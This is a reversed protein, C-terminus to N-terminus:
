EREKVAGIVVLILWWWSAEWGTAKAVLFLIIATM